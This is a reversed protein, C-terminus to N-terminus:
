VVKIVLLRRPLYTDKEEKVRDM